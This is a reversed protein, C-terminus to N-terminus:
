DADVIDAILEIDVYGDIQHERLDKAEGRTLLEMFVLYDRSAKVRGNPYKRKLYNLVSM